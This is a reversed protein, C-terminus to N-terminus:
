ILYARKAQCILEDHEFDLLREQHYIKGILNEKLINLQILEFKLDEFRLENVTIRTKGFYGLCKEMILIGKKQFESTIVNPFGFLMENNRLDYFKFKIRKGSKPKAELRTILDMGYLFGTENPEALYPSDILLGASKNHLQLKGLLESDFLIENIDALKMEKLARAFYHNEDFFLYQYGYGHIKLQYLM